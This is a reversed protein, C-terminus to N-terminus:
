RPSDRLTLKITIGTGSSTTQFNTLAGTTLDYTFLTNNGPLDSSIVVTKAGAGRNVSDVVLREESYPDEDILQGKKLRALAVPDIWYQGSSGTIGKAKTEQEHSFHVVSKTTYPTWNNGGRTFTVTHDMPFTMPISGPDFSNEFTWTGSYKFQSIRAVWAPNTGTLGPINRQRHGLLRAVYVQTKGNASTTRTTASVLLGTDTEYAYSSYAGPKNNLFATVKYTLDEVKYDGKFIKTDGLDANALEALRKPHIWVQDVVDGPTKGGGTM